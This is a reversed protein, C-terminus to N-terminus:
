HSYTSGRSAFIRHANRIKKGGELKPRQRVEGTVNGLVDQSM